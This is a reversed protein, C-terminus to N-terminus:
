NVASTGPFTGSPLSAEMLMLNQSHNHVVLVLVDNVGDLKLISSDALNALNVARTM